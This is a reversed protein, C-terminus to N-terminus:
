GTLHMGAAFLHISAELCRLDGLLFGSGPFLKCLSNIKSTSETFDMLGERRLVIIHSADGSFTSPVFILADQIEPFASQVASSGPNFSPIAM